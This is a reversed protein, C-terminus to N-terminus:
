QSFPRAGMAKGFLEFDKHKEEAIVRLVSMDLNQYEHVAINRFGCMARLSHQLEASILDNSHLLDFAEANCQPLGLKQRSIVHMSWDICAQCAREINLTLADIHSRNTLNKSLKYEEIIRKSCRQLVALKNLEVSDM